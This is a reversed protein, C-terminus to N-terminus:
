RIQEFTKTGTATAMKLNSSVREEGFNDDRTQNFLKPKLFGCSSNTIL